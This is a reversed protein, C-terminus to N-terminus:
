LRFKTWSPIKPGQRFVGFCTPHYREHITTSKETQLLGVIGIAPM